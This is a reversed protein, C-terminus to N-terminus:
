CQLLSLAKPHHLLYYNKGIDHVYTRVSFITRYRACITDSSSGENQDVSTRRGRQWSQSSAFRIPTATSSDGNISWYGLAEARGSLYLRTPLDVCDTAPGVGELKVFGTVAARARLQLSLDPARSVARATNSTRNRNRRPPLRYQRSSAFRHRRVEDLQQLYVPAILTQLVDSGVVAVM